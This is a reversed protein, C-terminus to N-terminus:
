NQWFQPLEKNKNHETIQCVQYYLITWTSAPTVPWSRLSPDFLTTKTPTTISRQSARDILPSAHQGTLGDTMWTLFLLISQVHQPLIWQVVCFVLRARADAISCQRSLWITYSRRRSPAQRVCVRRSLAQRVSYFTLSWFDVCKCREGARILASCHLAMIGAAIGFRSIVLAIRFISWWTHRRARPRGTYVM